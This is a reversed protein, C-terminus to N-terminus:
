QGKLFYKKQEANEEGETKGFIYISCCKCNEWLKQINKEQKIKGGVIKERQM